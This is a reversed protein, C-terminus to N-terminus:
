VSCNIFHKQSLCSCYLTLKHLIEPPENRMEGPHETMTKWDYIQFFKMCIYHVFVTLQFKCKTFQFSDCADVSIFVTRCRTFQFSKVVHVSETYIFLQWTPCLLKIKFVTYAYIRRPLLRSAYICTSTKSAQWSQRCSAQSALVSQHKGAM